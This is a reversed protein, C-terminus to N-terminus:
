GFLQPSNVNSYGFQYKSFPLNIVHSSLDIKISISFYFFFDYRHHEVISKLENIIVTKITLWYSESVHFLIHRSLIFSHAKNIPTFITIKYNRLMLFPTIDLSGITRDNFKRSSNHM